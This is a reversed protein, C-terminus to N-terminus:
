FAQFKEHLAHPGQTLHTDKTPKVCKKKKKYLLKISYPSDSPLM